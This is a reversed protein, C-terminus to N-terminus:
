YLKHEPSRRVWTSDSPLQARCGLGHGQKARLGEPGAEKMDVGGLATSELACNGSWSNSICTELGVPSNRFWFSQPHSGTIQTKM